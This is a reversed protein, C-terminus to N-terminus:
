RVRGHDPCEGHTLPKSCRVDLQSLALTARQPCSRRYWKVARIVASVFEYMLHWFLCYLILEWWQMTIM